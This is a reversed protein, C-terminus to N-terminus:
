MNAVDHAFMLVTGQLDNEGQFLFAVRRDGGGGGRRQLGHLCEATRQRQPDGQQPREVPISNHLAAGRPGADTGRRLAALARTSYGPSPSGAKRDSVMSRQPPGRDGASPRRSQRYGCATTFAAAHAALATGVKSRAARPVRRVHPLREGAPLSWAPGRSDADARRHCRYPM